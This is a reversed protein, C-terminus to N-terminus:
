TKSSGLRRILRRDLVADPAVLAHRDLGDNNLVVVLPLSSGTEGDRRDSRKPLLGDNCSCDIIFMGLRDNAAGM